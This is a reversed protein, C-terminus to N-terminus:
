GPRRSPAVVRARQEVEDLTAAEQPSPATGGLRTPLWWPDSGVAPVEPYDAQAKELLQELREALRGTLTTPDDAPEPHLPEGILVTVPVHRTLQRPRGKTVLRQGGWTVVPLLPAGSGLTLRAAGNKLAKVTFSRSITAEPFLGVVEGRGLADLAVDYSASGANRDVPIHRMGRMLPGAYRHHFVEEKAMFRVLRRAARAAYGVFLFDLYSVHNSALVAPGTAPVHEAGGVTVRLDLARFATIASRVVPRYVLEAM